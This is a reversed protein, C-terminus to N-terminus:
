LNAKVFILDCSNEKFDQAPDWGYRINLFMTDRAMNMRGELSAKSFNQKSEDWIRYMNLDFMHLRYGQNNPLPDIWFTENRSPAWDIREMNALNVDAIVDLTLADLGNVDQGESRISMLLKKYPLCPENCIYDVMGKPVCGYSDPMGPVRVAGDQCQYSGEVCITRVPQQEGCKVPIEQRCSALSLLILSFILFKM